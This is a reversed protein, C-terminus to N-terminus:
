LKEKCDWVTVSQFQGAHIVRDFVVHILATSASSVFGKLEPHKALLVSAMADLNKGKRFSLATGLITIAESELYSKVSNKRTDILVSVKSNILINKYKTTKKPTSFILGSCDPTLAFAVLSTYPQGGFDTALVAHKQRKNLISLGEKVNVKGQTKHIPIKNMYQGKEWSEIDGETKIFVPNIKPTRITKLQKYKLQDRNKLKRKLHDLEFELQGRTVTIKKNIGKKSIKKRDFHYGRHQSEWYIELLYSSIAGVPDSTKIFRELQPHNKYGRTEGKIVTQALLGERWVAILGKHDLYEPHISWLRM